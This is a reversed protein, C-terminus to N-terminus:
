VHAVICVGERRSERERDYRCLCTEIYLIGRNRYLSNAVRCETESLCLGM